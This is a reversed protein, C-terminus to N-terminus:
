MFFRAGPKAMLEHESLPMVPKSVSVLVDAVIKDLEFRPLIFDCYDRATLRIKANEAKIQNMYHEIVADQGLGAALGDLLYRAFCLDDDLDVYLKLTSAARVAENALVQPGFVVVHADATRIALVLGDSDLTKDAKMYVSADILLTKRSDIEDLRSILQLSLPKLDAGVPGCIAYVTM